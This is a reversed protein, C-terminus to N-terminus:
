NRKAGERARDSKKKQKKGQKMKMCVSVKMCTLQEALWNRM